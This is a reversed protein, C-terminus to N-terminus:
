EFKLLFYNFFFLFFYFEGSVSDGKRRIEIKKKWGIEDIERFLCSSAFTRKREIKIKKRRTNFDRSLKCLNAATEM